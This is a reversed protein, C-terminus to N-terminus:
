KIFLDYLKFCKMTPSIAMKTSTTCNSRGNLSRMLVVELPSPFPAFSSTSSMIQSSVPIVSPFSNDTSKRLSKRTSNVVPVTRSSAKISDGLFDAGLVRKGM